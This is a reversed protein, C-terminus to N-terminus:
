GLITVQLGDTEYGNFWLQNLNTCPFGVQVGKDILQNQGSTGTAPVYDAVASEDTGVAVPYTNGVQTGNHGRIYCSAGRPIPYNPGQQPNGTCILRFVENEPERETQVQIM